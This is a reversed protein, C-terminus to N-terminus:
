VGDRPAAVPRGACSYHVAITATVEGTGLRRHGGPRSTPESQDQRANVLKPSLCGVGAPSGSSSRQLWPQVVVHTGHTGRRGAPVDMIRSQARGTAESFGNGHHWVAASGCVVLSAQVGRCFAFPDGSPCARCLPHAASPHMSAHSTSPLQSRLGAGGGGQNLWYGRGRALARPSEMSMRVRRALDGRRQLSYRV